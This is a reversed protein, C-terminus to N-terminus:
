FVRVQFRIARMSNAPVTLLTNTQGPVAGVTVRDPGSPGGTDVVSALDDPGVATDTLPMWAGAWIAADGSGTPVVCTELSSTVYTFQTEDLPDDIRLDVAPFSTPNDVYLVFSITQGPTVVAGDLLVGGGADRVQKILALNVANITIRAAGTGDGNAITGNAIGGIGAIAANTAAEAKPPTGIFLWFGVLALVLVPRLGPGNM